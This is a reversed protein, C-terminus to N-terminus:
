IHTHTCVMKYRYARQARAIEFIQSLNILWVNTRQTLLHCSFVQRLLLLIDMNFCYMHHKAFGSTWLKQIKQCVYLTSSVVGIQRRHGSVFTGLTNHWRYLRHQGQHWHKQQRMWSTSAVHIWFCNWGAARGTNWCIITEFVTKSFFLCLWHFLCILLCKELCSPALFFFKWLNIRIGLGGLYPPDPKGTCETGKEAKSTSSMSRIRPSTGLFFLHFKLIWPSDM